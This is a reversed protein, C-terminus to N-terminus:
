PSGTLTGAPNGGASASLSNLLEQAAEASESEPAQEILKRLAAIGRARTKPSALLRQAGQLRRFRALEAKIEPDRLLRQFRQRAKEPFRYGRFQKVIRRYLQYATWKRGAQHAEDAARNLQGIREQVHQHLRQAAQKVAENKSALGRRIAKAAASYNGLEVAQWARRLSAPIGRPDVNWRAGQRARQIASRLDLVSGFSIRGDPTIIRLQWSNRRGDPSVLGCARALSQDVDAVVPLAIRHRRVYSAVKSVPTGSSVAIVVVPELASAKAVAM